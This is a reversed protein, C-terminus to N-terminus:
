LPTCHTRLWDALSAETVTGAAVGVFLTLLDQQSAVPRQGHLRLFTMCVTFATRKNGDIFPHNRALGWGYCAALDFLDPQGYITLTMPRALASELLGRDRIGPSGGHQAIQREHILLTPELGIWRWNDTM